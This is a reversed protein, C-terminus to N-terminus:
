KDVFKKHINYKNEKNKIKELQKTLKNREEILERYIDKVEQPMSDPDPYRDQLKWIHDRINSLRDELIKQDLRENIKIISQQTQQYDEAKAYRNDVTFLAGVITILSIIVAAYTGIKKM